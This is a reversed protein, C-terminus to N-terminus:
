LIMQAVRQLVVDLPVATLVAPVFPLLTASLLFLFSRIDVPVLRMQYVNAVISYLDTQASFDPAKLAEDSIDSQHPFWRHEFRQGVSVALAGYQAVGRRWQTALRDTFVLLPLTSGVVIVSVMAAIQYRFDLASVQDEIVRRTVAGALIAGQAFGLISFARLSYSVFILGAARDPHAPVLQLDLRSMRWLFRAWLLLRWLWGFLLFFLLPSSVLMAWWGAPSFAWLGAAASRQWDAPVHGPAALFLVPALGWGIAVVVIEAIVSDKFRRTSSVAADFRPRDEATILGLDVFHLAIADLQPAVLSEALVLLPLAILFRAHVAFDSAFSALSSWDVLAGKVVSLLALPAWAILVARIAGSRARPHLGIWTKLRRPPGCEFIGDASPARSM